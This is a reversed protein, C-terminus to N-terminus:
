PSQERGSAAPMPFASVPYNDRLFKSQEKKLLNNFEVASVYGDFLVYGYISPIYMLWQMDLSSIAEGINGTMSLHIAQLVNSQFVVVVTWIIMFLGIIVKFVYLHGLGPMLLSFVAALWPKRIDTFNMDVAGMTFARTPADEMDALRYQKNLDITGRFSDWIGYTYLGMYMLFWQKDVVEKALEFQGLLSYFISLNIQANTNVILEWVILIMGIVKRNQVLNGCGPFAFSWFAVVWPNRLHLQTTSITSLNSRLRRAQYM